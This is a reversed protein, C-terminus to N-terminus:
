YKEFITMVMVTLYYATNEFKYMVMGTITLDPTADPGLATLYRDSIPNRFVYYEKGDREVKIREWKQGEVAFFGLEGVLSFCINTQKNM